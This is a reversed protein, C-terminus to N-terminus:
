EEFFRKLDDPIEMPRFPSVASAGTNGVPLIGLASGIVGTVVRFLQGAVEGLDRKKFGVRLMWLHSITHPIIFRQGLIHARELHYFTKDLEEKEFHAKARSMEQNFGVLLNERLVAKM